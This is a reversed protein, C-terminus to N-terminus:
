PAELIISLEYSSSASALLEAQDAEAAAIILAGGAGSSNFAGSAAPAPLAAIRVRDVIPVTQGEPSLAVVSILDGVQLIAAIGEDSIRFPVLSLGDAASVLASGVIDEGILTTGGPRPVALVQGIVRAPDTLAAAPVAEAPLEATTVDDAGVVVGAALDRASVVVTRTPAPRPSLAALALVLACAAAIVALGRRHWRVARLLSSFWGSLNM